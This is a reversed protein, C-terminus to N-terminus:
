PFVYTPQSQSIKTGEYNFKLQSFYKTKLSQYEDSELNSNFIDLKNFTDNLKDGLNQIKDQFSNVTSSLSDKANRINDFISKKNSHEESKIAPDKWTSLGKRLFQWQDNSRFKNPKFSGEYVKEDVKCNSDSLLDVFKKDVESIDGLQNSGGICNNYFYNKVSPLMVFQVRKPIINLYVANYKIYFVDNRIIESDIIIQDFRESFELKIKDVIQNKSIKDAESIKKAINDKM